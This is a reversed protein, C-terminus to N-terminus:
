WFLSIVEELSSKESSEFSRKEENRNVANSVTFSKVGVKQNLERKVLSLYNAVEPHSAILKIDIPVRAPNGETALAKQEVKNLVIVIEGLNSPRIKIMIQQSSVSSTTFAEVNRIVESSVTKLTATSEVFSVGSRTDTSVTSTVLQQSGGIVVPERQSVAKQPSIEEKRQDRQPDNARLNDTDPEREQQSTMILGKISSQGHTGGEFIISPKDLKEPLIKENNVPEPLIVKKAKKQPVLQDIKIQYPLTGLEKAPMNPTSEEAAPTAQASEPFVAASADLCIVDVGDSDSKNKSRNVEKGATENFFGLFQSKSEPLEGKSTVGGIYNGSLHAGEATKLLKVNLVKKNLDYSVFKM